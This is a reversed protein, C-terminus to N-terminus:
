NLPALEHTLEQNSVQMFGAFPQSLDAILFLGSSVSLAFVLLATVVVMGPEVLLGFSTFIVALWFILILLFPTLIPNESDAFMLLRTRAVDTSALVIRSKLARQADTAPSLAEIANYLQEAVSSSSFASDQPSATAKERRIRDMAAPVAQRMLIRINVAEPGYQELLQDVLVLHAAFQRFHADQTDYSTKASAIMLSIVVAALTALLGAGLRVFERTETGLHAAPLRARLVMGLAAGAVISVFSILFISVSNM